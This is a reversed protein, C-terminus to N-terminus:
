YNYYFNQNIQLDCVTTFIWGVRSSCILMWQTFYAHSSVSWSTEWTNTWKVTSNTSGTATVKERHSSPIVNLTHRPTISPVQLRQAIAGQHAVTKNQKQTPAFQMCEWALVLESLWRMQTVYSRREKFSLNAPSGTHRALITLAHATSGTLGRASATGTPIICCIELAGEQWLAILSWRWLMGYVLHTSLENQRAWTTILRGRQGVPRPTTMELKDTPCGAYRPGVSSKCKWTYRILPNSPSNPM